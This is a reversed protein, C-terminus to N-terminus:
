APVGCSSDESVPIVSQEVKKKFAVLLEDIAAADTSIKVLQWINTPDLLRLTLVIAPCVRYNVALMQGAYDLMSMPDPEPGEMDLKDQVQDFAWSMLEWTPLHERQPVTCPAGTDDLTYDVPIDAQCPLTWMNGDRLQLSVDGFRPVAGRLLSAPTPPAATTWGIWVATGGIKQWTQTAPECDLHPLEALRTADAFHWLSGGPLGDPGTLPLAIAELQSDDPHVLGPLQEAAPRTNPETYLLYQM